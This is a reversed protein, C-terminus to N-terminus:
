VLYKGKRDETMEERLYFKQQIRLFATIILVSIYTTELFAMFIHFFMKQGRFFSQHILMKSQFWELLECPMLLSRKFQQPHTGQLSKKVYVNYIIELFAKQIQVFKVIKQQLQRHNALSLGIWLWVFTWNKVKLVPSLKVSHSVEM